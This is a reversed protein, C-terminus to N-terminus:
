NLLRELVFKSGYYALVLIGFGIQTATVTQKGRWGFAKRGFILTAFIIWAIISLITKHILHQAFIDEIFIFGTFLPVIAHILCPTITILQLRNCKKM